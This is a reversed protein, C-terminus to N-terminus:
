PRDAGHRIHPAAKLELYGASNLLQLAAAAPGLREEWALQHERYFAALLESLGPHQQDGTVIQLVEPAAPRTSIGTIEWGTSEGAQVTRTGIQMQKPARFNLTGLHHQNLEDIGSTLGHPPERLLLRHPMVSPFLLMLVDPLPRAADVALRHKSDDYAEVLLDPWAAILPSRVLCGTQPGTSEGLTLREALLTGLHRDLVSTAGIHLAGRIVTDLWATDIHFFRASHEPLVAEHPVLHHFPAQHLVDRRAPLRDAIRPTHQGATEAVARGATEAAARLAPDLERDAHAATLAAIVEGPGFGAGSGLTPVPASAPTPTTPWTHGLGDTIKQDINQGVLAELEQRASGEPTNLSRHVARLAEQRVAMLAQQLHPDALALLQGLTFAAAYGVDYVGPSKRFVLTGDACDARALGDAAAAPVPTLPGRYWAPAHEGTPLRLAVPVAGDTIRDAIHRQIVTTPAPSPPLRLRGEDLRTNDALKDALAHFSSLRDSGPATAQFSWSWLAAMRVVTADAVPRSGGLFDFGDFGELSVLVATYPGPTRPFRNGLLVSHDGPAWGPGDLDENRPPGDVTVSRVHALWPLEAPTPLLKKLVGATIDLTPM